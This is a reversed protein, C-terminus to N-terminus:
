QLKKMQTGHLPNYTATLCKWSKRACNKLTLKRGTKNSFYNLLKLFDHESCQWNLLLLNLKFTLPIRAFKSLTPNLVATIKNVGLDTCGMKELMDHCKKYEKSHKHLELSYLKIGDEEHVDINAMLEEPPNAEQEKKKGKKTQKKSTSGGKKESTEQSTPICKQFSWATGSPLRQLITEYASSPEASSTNGMRIATLTCLLDFFSCLAANDSM